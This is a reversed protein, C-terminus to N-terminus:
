QDVEEAAQVLRGPFLLQTGAVIVLTGEAIGDKVVIRGTEFREVTIVQASVTMTEPDVVWVAPGQSTASMASYPVVIGAGASVITSGRVADGYEVGAPRQEVSVKVAVTGKTPDILPSIERVTGTFAQDPHRLPTMEMTKFGGATTLLSEPADFLADVANGLALEVVPQVAGIVQGPEVHRAIVTAADPATVVTDELAKQALDLDARAQALGGEKVRAQDAAADRAVRTTAGRELLSDQRRLDELAQDLDASATSVAARAARLAQEQQIANIRALVTGAAVFDGEQVDVSDVRGGSPFSVSLSDRAVIEGTLSISREIVTSQATVMEVVLPTEAMASSATASALILLRLPM